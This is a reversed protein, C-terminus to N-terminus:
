DFSEKRGNSVENIFVQPTVKEGEYVCMRSCNSRPCLLEVYAGPPLYAKFHLKGCYACRYEQPKHHGNGNVPRQGVM